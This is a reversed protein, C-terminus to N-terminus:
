PQCDTTKSPLAAPKEFLFYSTAAVKTAVWYPFHRLKGWLGPPLDFTKPELYEHLTAFDHAEVLRRFTAHDWHYTHPKDFFLLHRIWRAFTHVYIRLCGGPKLVRWMERLVAPANAVHDLVNFCILHDVSADALPLAEGTAALLTVPPLNDASEVLGERAYLAALPDLGLPLTQPDRYFNLVTVPGCGVDVVLGTPIPGGTKELTEAWFQALDVHGYLESQRWHRWFAAEASQAKQWRARQEAQGSDSEWVLAYDNSNVQLTVPAQGGPARWADIAQLREFASGPIVPIEQLPGERTSRAM